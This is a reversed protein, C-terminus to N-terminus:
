VFLPQFADNLISVEGGSNVTIDLLNDETYETSGIIPDTLAFAPFNGVIRKETVSTITATKGGIAVTTDALLGSFNTGGITFQGGGAAPARWNSIDYAVMATISDDVPTAVYVASDSHDFSLLAGGPGTIVDLGELLNKTEAVGQDNIVETELLSINSVDTGDESLEVNYLFGNWRQAILNGKLQGGFTNSRYEIIGNTSSTFEAIPATYDANSPDDYYYYINQRPDDEGRSRNPQGYYNGEEIINLEDFITRGADFPVQTDAGTSQAGFGGNASNETAYITGNTSLVLDYANRLGSAYVSVDVGPVVDVIGGFGQSEEPNAPSGDPKTLNIGDPVVFDAPLQYQINGNFGPKTIEAKLIAATLPSEDIGGIADDIIGANTNSGVTILLDGNADFELGNVGHDHNSVGINDVLPNLATFDPGELTSVQGSYPSFDTLENFGGEQTYSEANAYFQNHSVYIKPQGGNNEFPNFAIGTINVNREASDAITNITQTDLVNYNDDFTYVKIQGNTLGVYLRGDPGWTGTAPGDNNGISGNYNDIEQRPTFNVEVSDNDVINATVSPVTLTSYETATTAITHEITSAHFSEGEADDVASVTVTRPVNWNEPTFVLNTQDVTTQGDLQFNITVDATPQTNLLVQYTDTNGGETVSTNQESEEILVQPDDIPTIVIGALSAQDVVSTFDLNLTGDQVIALNPIEVISADNEGDLFANNTLKYIDLDNLALDGELAVDFVRSGFDTFNLESLYLSVNYNGNAVPIAYSFDTASRQSQYIFDDKTNDIPNYNPAIAQGGIFNADKQWLKGFSDVADLDAGANIRIVGDSEPNLVGIALTGITTAAVTNDSTDSVAGANIAVTYDGIDAANWTGGPAAISYVATRPTGNATADIGTLTAPVVTGNPATVTVDSADITTTNIGVNDSFTVSFNATNTSSTLQNLVLVDSDDPTNDLRVVPAILDAVPEAPVLEIYNLNFDTSQFDLRLEQTGANLNVNNIVVDTYTQFGGTNGFSAAYTQGGITADINKTVDTPTAVRLVLNYNRAETINVDYTLFEGAQIFGVNFGGGEDGTVEIDVPEGPRYEGGFNEAEFDFFEVDNTGARYDEAEIRIAGTESPPQVTPQAVLELYNLNFSNSKMNLRIEQGGASLNVNPITIDQYTQWGGTNSFNATYTQGGIVVDVSKADDSATAVRLVLDYNGPTAITVDYTLFEGAEIWALNYGGDVDGTAEIDVDDSNYAGGFNGRSTDFYEIGNNGTKYDEAEIRITNGTTVQQGGTIDVTFSGLSDAAIANDSTDSVAAANLNVTYNGQDTNDWAGGPAAVSYTATRPTGNGTANVGVLTVPLVTGDPATVTVDNADITTSQIAINDSFTVNFIAAGASSFQQTLSATDLQALPVSTDVVPAKAELQIYNLNFEDSQIDLRLEQIGANLNVNPLVVDQYVQYDGTSGFSATYNQGGITVGISQVETAPTAVRLILEYNGAEAINVDYTLHEGAQVFGVNFGGGTDGTPEIDVAENLRYAGGDNTPSFDFYEVDLDGAKYDEAEIRIIGAASPNHPVNVNFNGLIGAAVNNASTDSVEGANIEVTYAGRGNVWNGAPAAVSYTATMVTQDGNVDEVGVFTVPLITVGDPATVTIDNVNITDADIGVNDTYTVTFAYPQAFDTLPAAVLTATPIDGPNSVNTSDLELVLPSSVSGNTGNGDQYKAVIYNLGGLEGGPATTRTLTVPVNVTGNAGITATIENVAIAVNAEFPDPDFGVGDETLFAGEVILLSVELGPTGTVQITQNADAVTAKDALGVVEITPTGATIESTLLVQSVTPNPTGDGQPVSYFQGTIIEGDAFEVTATAGVLELGSISGFHKSNDQEAGKTSTPDTDISFELTATPQFDSFNIKLSAFGADPFPKLFEHSIVGSTGPNSTPDVDIEFGKTVSDGAPNNPDPDYAIDPFIATSLDLTISTISQTTSNNTIQFSNPAFTSSEYIDGDPNIVFLVEKM